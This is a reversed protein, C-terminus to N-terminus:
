RGRTSGLSMDAAGQGALLARSAGACPKGVPSLPIEAVFRVSKPAKAQSVNTAFAILGAEDAAEGPNFSPSATVSEGWDRRAARGGRGAGGLSPRGARGGERPYVSYGGTVIMDSTRDVLTLYGEDFCGIDRTRSGGARFSAEATLAPDHYGTM